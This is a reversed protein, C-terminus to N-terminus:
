GFTDRKFCAGKNTKRRKYFYCAQTEGIHLRCKMLTEFFFAGRKLLLSSITQNSFSSPSVCVATGKKTRATMASIESLPSSIKPSYLLAFIVALLLSLLLTFPM